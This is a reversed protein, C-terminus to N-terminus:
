HIKQTGKKNGREACADQASRREGIGRAIRLSGELIHLLASRHGQGLELPAHQGGHATCVIESRFEIPIRVTELEDLIAAHDPDVDVALAADDATGSIM